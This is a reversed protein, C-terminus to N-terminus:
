GRPTVGAARFSIGAVTQGNDNKFSYPSVRADILEVYTGEALDGPDMEITIKIEEGKVKRGNVPRQKAFVSLVFLNAKTDRDVVVETGGDGTQRTKMEPAETVMLSYGGLNCPIDRM